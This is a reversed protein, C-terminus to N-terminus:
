YRSMRALSYFAGELLAIHNGTFKTFTVISPTYVKLLCESASVSECMVLYKGVPLKDLRLTVDAYIDEKKGTVYEVTNENSFKVLILRLRARDGSQRHLTLYINSSENVEFTYLAPNNPQCKCQYFYSSYNQRTHVTDIM